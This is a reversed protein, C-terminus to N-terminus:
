PLLDENVIAVVSNESILGFKQTGIKYESIVGGTVILDGVKVTCPILTDGSYRGPGVALVRATNQTGEKEGPLLIKSEQVLDEKEILLNNHLPQLLFNSM